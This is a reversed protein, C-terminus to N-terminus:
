VCFLETTWLRGGSKKVGVGVKSWYTELINEKHGPSDMFAQHMQLATSAAGVNEGIKAVCNAKDMYSLLQKTSSHKVPDNQNAMANSHKRALESLKASVQLKKKDRQTRAKNILSAIKKESVRLAASAPQAQVAGLVITGALVVALLRLPRRHVTLSTTTMSIRELERAEAM